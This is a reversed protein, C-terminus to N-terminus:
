AEKGLAISMLERRKEIPWKENFIAGNRKLLEKFSFDVDHNFTVSGYHHIFVDQAIGLKFGAEIARFSCDDDEFNGPTFVEDLLGIAECTARKMTLYHMGLRYHPTCEGFRQSAIRSAVMRLGAKNSYYQAAIQQPGAISNSVAAVLDFGDNLHRALMQNWEWTAVVTDNNAICLYDGVAAQVGQNVAKPFGLNSENRIIRVRPNDSVIPPESGNDIVIIEFDGTTCKSISEICEATMEHQNIAPFIISIM